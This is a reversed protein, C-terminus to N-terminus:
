MKGFLQGQAIGLARALRQRTALKPNRTRGSEIEYLSRRNLGVKAALVAQPYGRAIRALRLRSAPKRDQAKTTNVVAM